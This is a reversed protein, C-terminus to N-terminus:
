TRIYMSDLFIISIFRKAFCFYLCLSLSCMYSCWTPFTSPPIFQSIPISM